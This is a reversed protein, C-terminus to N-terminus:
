KSPAFASARRAQLWSLLYGQIDRALAVRAGTAMEPPHQIFRHCVIQGVMIKAPRATIDVTGRVAACDNASVTSAMLLDRTVVRTRKTVACGSSSHDLRKVYRERPSSASTPNSVSVRPWPPWFAM